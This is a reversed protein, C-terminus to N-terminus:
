VNMHKKLKYEESEREWICCKKKLSKDENLKFVGIFHYANDGFMDKDSYFAIRKCKTAICKNVHESADVNKKIGEIYVKRDASVDNAWKDSGKKSCWVQLYEEGPVYATGEKLFGLDRAKAEFINYASTMTRVKIDDSVRLVDMSKYYNEDKFISRVLKHFQEALYQLVKDETEFELLWKVMTDWNTWLVETPLEDEAPRRSHSTVYLLLNNGEKLLACHNKLQDERIYCDLKSEVYLTGKDFVVKGDPVSRPKRRKGEINIVTYEKACQSEIDVINGFNNTVGLKGFLFCLLEEGGMKWVQLMATTAKNEKQSYTGFVSIEDINM